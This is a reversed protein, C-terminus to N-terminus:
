GCGVTEATVDKGAACRLVNGDLTFGRELRRKVIKEAGIGRKALAVCYGLDGDFFPLDPRQGIRAFNQRPEEAIEVVPRREIM